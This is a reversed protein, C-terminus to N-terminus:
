PAGPGPRRLADIRARGAALEAESLRGALEARARLTPDDVEASESKAETALSLWAYALAEDRPVGRGDRYMLGLNAQAAVEGQQAAAQYLRAAAADDRPVGEGREYLLGLQYQANALGQSAARAHWEAALRPDKLVGRGAAYLLGLNNQAVPHGREAAKMLLAAAM